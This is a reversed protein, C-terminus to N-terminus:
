FITVTSNPMSVMSFTGIVAINSSSSFPEHTSYYQQFIGFSYPFGWVLGEVMFCAALFLWAEKGGDAPPITRSYDVAPEFNQEILERQSVNDVPLRELRNLEIDNPKTTM